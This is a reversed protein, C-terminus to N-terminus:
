CHFKVEKINRTLKNVPQVKMEQNNMKRKKMLKQIIERNITYKQIM